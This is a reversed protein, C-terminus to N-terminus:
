KENKNTKSESKLDEHHQKHCGWCLVTLDNMQERGLRVYTLHHVTLNHVSNCVRCFYGHHKLAKERKRKWKESIIYEAYIVRVKKIVKSKQARQKRKTKARKAALQKRWIKEAKRAAKDM